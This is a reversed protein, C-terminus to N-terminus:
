FKLPFTIKFILDLDGFDILELDGVLMTQIWANTKIVQLDGGFLTETYTQDSDMCKNLLYRTLVALEFM